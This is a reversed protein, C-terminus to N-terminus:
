CAARWAELQLHKRIATIGLAAARDCFAARGLAYEVDLVPKGAALFPRYRGCERYQFCQETVSLDWAGVLARVLDRSM